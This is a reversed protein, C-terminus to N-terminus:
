ALALATELRAIIESAAEEGVSLRILDSDFGASHIQARGEPTTVLDYHALYIFPSMLTFATGFSPGKPLDVADYFAQMSGRISFSLVAGWCANRDRAIRRYGDRAREQGAWWVCNVKPHQELFRAVEACNESTRRAFSEWGVLEAALRNLDRQYPVIRFAQIAESLPGAWKREPNIAVAGMLLDGSRATYKTLSTIVVDAWHTVKVNAVSAISPDLVLPCDLEDALARLAVVDPSQILPNTPVETVIGAIQDRIPRLVQALGRLDFVDSWVVPQAGEASMTALMKITDVYLWGLQVWRRRGAAAMLQNISSFAAYFANMGGQTLFLHSPPVDLIPALQGVLEKESTAIMVEATVAARLGHRVLLDEVRRSTPSGGIFQLFRRTQERSTDDNEPYVVWGIGDQEGSAAPAKGVYAELPKLITIDNLLFAAGAPILGTQQWHTKLERLFSHEFFRPYGSRMANIVRPAKVEYDIVDQLTPFSVVVSHPSGNITHGLPYSRMAVPTSSGASSAADVKPTDSM